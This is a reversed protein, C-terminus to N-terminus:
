ILLLIDVASPRLDVRIMFISSDQRESYRLEDTEM